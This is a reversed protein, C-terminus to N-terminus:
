LSDNKAKKLTWAKNKIQELIEEEDKKIYRNKKVDYLYIERNKILIKHSINKIYFIPADKIKILGGGDLILIDGIDLKM